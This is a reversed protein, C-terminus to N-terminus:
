RSINYGIGVFAGFDVDGIFGTNIGATATLKSNLPIDIGGNVMPGFEGETSVAMGAGIYPALNVDSRGIKGARIPEFDFTLPLLFTADDSFNTTVGPRVSFFDTLGIKSYIILGDKGVSTKGVVGFNGGVGIYSSGSRTSQGPDVGDEPFLEETEPFQQAIQVTAHDTTEIATPAIEVTEARAASVPLILGALPLGLLGARQLLNSKNM